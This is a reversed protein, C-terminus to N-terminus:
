NFKYRDQKGFAISRWGWGSVLVPHTLSRQQRHLELAKEALAVVSALSYDCLQLLIAVRSVNTDRNRVTLTREVAGPCTQRPGAQLTVEVPGSRLPERRDTPWYTM